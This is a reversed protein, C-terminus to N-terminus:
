PSRVALWGAGVPDRIVGHSSARDMLRKVIAIDGLLEDALQCCLGREWLAHWTQRSAAIGAYNAAAVLPLTYDDSRRNDDKAKLIADYLDYYTAAEIGSSRLLDDQMTQGGYSVLLSNEAISRFEEMTEDGFIRYRETLYDYTCVIAARGEIAACDYIVFLKKM